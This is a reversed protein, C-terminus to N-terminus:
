SYYPCPISIYFFTTLLSDIKINGSALKKGEGSPTKGWVIEETKISKKDQSRPKTISEKSHSRSAKRRRVGAESTASM